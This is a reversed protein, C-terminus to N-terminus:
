IRVVGITQIKIPTVIENPSLAVLQPIYRETFHKFHRRISPSCLVIPQDAFELTKTLLKNLGGLIRQAVNPDLALQTGHDTERVAQQITSEVKPDLTILSINGKADVYQHTIHRGMAERVSETLLEPDKTFTAHDAIAELITVLDRISVQERLLNKCIKLVAGLPLLTPILDDVLKPRAEGVKDLLAQLEQRGVLEHAHRRITETIHTAIITSHNVVTYGNLQARDKQSLPIWLSPLGFVPETTSRGEIKETVTGSDMALLQNAVLDGEAIKAGRLLIRYGGQSLQLNDRVRIPPTILGLETAMQKRISVIRDLLEGDQKSDVIAILGFGVELELTDLPLLADVGVEPEEAKKEEEKAQEEAVGRDNAQKALAALTALGIAFLFFVLHPLGPILGLGALIVAVIAIAKPHRAFQSLMEESLNDGTAVRSIVLGAATSIILAPIQSILGDGVTLVTYTQAAEGVPMGHQVIGIILGGIINIGTIVLGAIADGRVFKSAGDMAGYFDGEIEVEKRRRRSEKEDILGANLDADISMQKGPMADLTFRAAVESIRGAGKTIVVFNVLVLIIFIVMGVVYNGGIVFHGFAQIVRGAATEGEAGGLLILRTSAVNLSLRFLTAGLLISPFSTFQLPSQNYVAILFILLALSLSFTLMVDLIIPPVPILMVGIIGILAAALGIDAYIPKKM